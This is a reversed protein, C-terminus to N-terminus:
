ILLCLSILILAECVEVTAGYVDGTYGEIKRAVLFYVVCIGLATAVLGVLLGPLSLVAMIGLLGISYLFMDNPNLNNKLQAGLGSSRVYPFVSVCLTLGLRALITSFVLAMLSGNTLLYVLATFKILIICCVAIIAGVGCHTDKLIELMRAADHGGMWADGCDALGDLHLAGTIMVWVAVLIAAVVMEPLGAVSLFWGSVSLIIGLVGGVVGYWSVAAASNEAHVESTSSEIAVLRSTVPIRTLFQVAFLFAKM